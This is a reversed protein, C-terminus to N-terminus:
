PTGAPGGAKGGLWARRRIEGLSQRLVALAGAPHLPDALVIGIRQLRQGTWAQKYEDDGRGFDLETVGDAELLHRIMLATLVTGPSVARSAEVHSLKLV